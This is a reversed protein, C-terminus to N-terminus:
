VADDRHCVQQALGAHIFGLTLDNLREPCRSLKRKGLDFVDKVHRLKLCPAHVDFRPREVKASEYGLGDLDDQRLSSILFKFNVGINRLVRSTPEYAIRVM